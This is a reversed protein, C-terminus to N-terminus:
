DYDHPLAQQAEVALPVAFAGTLSTLLFRCCDMM